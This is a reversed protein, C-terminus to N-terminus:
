YIGEILSWSDPREPRPKRKVRKLFGPGRHITQIEPSQREESVEKQPQTETPVIPAPDGADGSDTSIRQIPTKIFHGAADRPREVDPKRENSGYGKIRVIPYQEPTKPALVVEKQKAPEGTYRRAKVPLGCGEAACPGEWTTRRKASKTETLHGNPCRGRVNIGEFSSM